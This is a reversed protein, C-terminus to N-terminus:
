VAIVNGNKFIVLYTHKRIVINNNHPLTLSNQLRKKNEFDRFDVSFIKLTDHCM